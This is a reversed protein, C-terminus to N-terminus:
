SRPTALAVLPILPLTTFQTINDTGYRDTSALLSTAGTIFLSGATSPIYTVLNLTKDWVADQNHSLEAFHATRAQVYHALTLWDPNRLPVQFKDSYKSVVAQIWDFALSHGPSYQHLNGQHMTHTYVSGDMVHQLGINSEDDVFEPYSLNHDWFPFVGGPGYIRNYFLTEEAPATTQYGVNTPWDPVIMLNPKLPHYIGCNFCSPRHSTFSMNGHLFQVGSDSAANLMAQNSGALGFDTPPDTDPANPNPNYVGLGSYAPTKLVQTPVNLGIQRGVKLNNNIEAFNQAYPTANLEPHSFTHNIWRFNNKMCESFSTLPDPTNIASCKNPATTDIDEGNYPLNLTFGGAVPFQDRLQAQQANVAAVEPGSLRFGPDQELHGDPFLHDSSNFWDDVDVNIWHRQEGVLVGRTAWRVLGYGLLDTQMLFQNSSFTLAARERGDTSTSTVGLVKNGLTLLPQAACGAAVTSQYVYSFSIPIQAGPRLYDFFQNGASTMSAQVANGVGGETGPRLCYDEPFTGWSTYLSVQRVKFSAEYSWLTQWEAASLGSVYNGTTDQFLLGNDTLLIANYRGAGDGRVLNAATLPQTRALLVDYPTGIRDLVAKWTPLGFDNNDLAIVLPRLAVRTTLGAADDQPAAKPSANLGSQVPGNVPHLQPPTPPTPPAVEARVFQHRPNQGVAASAQPVAGVTGVALALLVFAARKRIRSPSKM